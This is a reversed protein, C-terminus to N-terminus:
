GGDDNKRMEERVSKWHRFAEPGGLLALALIFPLLFYIVRFLVLSALLSEQSTIPVAKLMAAEFVGIGGPANSAVGLICAFAYTAVFTFFDIDARHPLLMYLAGGAACQDIIGLVVQGLTLFLGPLELRFGHIRVHRRRITAWAMYAAIAGLIVAGMLMNLLPHLHNVESIAHARFVLAAGIV